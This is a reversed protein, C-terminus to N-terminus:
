IMIQSVMYSCHLEFATWSSKLEDEILDIRIVSAHVVIHSLDCACRIQVLQLFTKM